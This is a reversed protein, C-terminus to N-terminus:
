RHQEPWERALREAEAVQDLTMLQSVYDRIHAASGDGHLTALNFWIHAQVYDQPVGRGQVYMLGFYYQAYSDGQEAAMRYWKAAEVFDQAVRDGNYYMRGLDNQALTSGLEAAKRVRKMGQVVRLPKITATLSQMAKTM